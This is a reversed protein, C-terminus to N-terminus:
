KKTKKIKIEKPFLRNLKSKAQNKDLKLFLITWASTKFVSFLSGAFIIIFLFLLLALIVVFVVAGSMKVSLFFSILYLLITKGIFFIYLLFFGLLISFVFFFLSMELSVLWNKVFLKYASLIADKIKKNFVVLYAVAYRNVFSLSISLPIFVIFLLLFIFLNANQSISFLSFLVFLSGVVVALIFNLFFAPLFKKLGLNFLSYFDNKKKETFNASASIIAVQSSVALVSFLILLLFFFLYVFFIVFLTSADGNLAKKVGSLASFSFLDADSMSKFLAFLEGGDGLNFAGRVINLEDDAGLLAAFLGFFWLFKNRWANFWAQKFIKRYLM